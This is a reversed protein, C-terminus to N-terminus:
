YGSQDEKKKHYTEHQHNAGPSSLNAEAGSEYAEEIQNKYFEKDKSEYVPNDGKASEIASGYQVSQGKTEKGAAKMEETEKEVHSGIDSRKTSELSVDAAVSKDKEFRKTEFLTKSEKTVLQSIDAARTEPAVFNKQEEVEGIERMSDSMLEQAKEIEQKRKEEIEKLRKLREEPPLQKLEDIEDIVM